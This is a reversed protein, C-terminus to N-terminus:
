QAHQWAEALPSLPQTAGGNAPPTIQTVAPGLEVVEVGSSIVVSGTTHIGYVIPIPYGQDTINVAGNYLFSPREEPREQGKATDPSPGLAAVISGIVMSIAVTAAIYIVTAVINSVVFYEAIAAIAVEAGAGATEPALHIEKYDGFTLEVNKESVPEVEDKNKKVIYLNPYKITTERFGPILAFLGRFLMAPTDVDLPIAASGFKEALAGHFFVNRIM